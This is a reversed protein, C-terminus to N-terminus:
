ARDRLAKWAAPSSAGAALPPAPKEESKPGPPPIPVPSQTEARRAPSLALPAAAAAELGEREARAIGLGGLLAFVLIYHCGYLIPEVILVTKLNPEAM